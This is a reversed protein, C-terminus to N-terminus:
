PIIKLDVLANLESFSLPLLVEIKIPYLRKKYMFAM